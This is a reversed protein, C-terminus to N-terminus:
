IQSHHDCARHVVNRIGETEASLEREHPARGLQLPQSRQDRPGFAPRPADCQDAAFRAGALAPQGALEGGGRRLVASKHEVAGAVGDYLRGVTREDLCEVLKPPEGLRSVQALRQTAAAALELPQKGVELDPLALQRIWNGGVRVGLAVPEMCRDRIQKCPDTPVAREHEYELVRVPGVGGGQEQQAM